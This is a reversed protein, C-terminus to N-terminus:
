LLPGGGTRGSRILSLTKALSQQPSEGATDIVLHPRDWPEYDRALVEDWTPLVLGKINVTRTEVRKKHEERDSCITEVELVPVGATMGVARWASRTIEIPNVSDAVVTAGLSLNDAAIRYALAYGEGQVDDFGVERLTQEITDVRVHVAGLEQAVCKSITSKGSAPLGGFILLM